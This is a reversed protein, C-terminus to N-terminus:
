EKSCEAPLLCPPSQLTSLGASGLIPSQSAESKAKWQRRLTDKFFFGKREKSEESTVVRSFSYNLYFYYRCKLNPPLIAM